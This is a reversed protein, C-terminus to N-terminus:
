AGMPDEEATRTDVQLNRGAEVIFSPYRREIGMKRHVANAVEIGIRRWLDLADDLLNM